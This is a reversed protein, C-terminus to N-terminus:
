VAADARAIFPSVKCASKWNLKLFLSKALDVPFLSSVRVAFKRLTLYTSKSSNEMIPKELKEWISSLSLYTKLDVYNSPPQLRIRIPSM